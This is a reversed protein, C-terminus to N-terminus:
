KATLILMAIRLTVDFEGRVANDADAPTVILASLGSLQCNKSISLQM